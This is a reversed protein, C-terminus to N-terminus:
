TVLYISSFRKPLYGINKKPSKLASGVYGDITLNKSFLFIQGLDKNKGVYFIFDIIRRYLTDRLKITTFDLQSLDFLSKANINKNELFSGFM